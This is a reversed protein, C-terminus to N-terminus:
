GSFSGFRASRILKRWYRKLTDRIPIALFKRIITIWLALILSFVVLRISSRAVHQNAAYFPGVLILSLMVLFFLSIGYTSKKDPTTLYIATCCIAGIILAILAILNAHPDYFDIVVTIHEQAQSRLGGNTEEIPELPEQMTKAVTLVPMVGTLLTTLVTWSYTNISKRHKALHETFMKAHPHQRM